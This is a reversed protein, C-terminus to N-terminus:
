FAAWILVFTGGIFTSRNSIVNLSTVFLDERRRRVEGGMENWKM